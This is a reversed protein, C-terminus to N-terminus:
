AAPPAAGSVWSSADHAAAGADAAVMCGGRRRATRHVRAAENACRTPGPSSCMRCPFASRHRRRSTSRWTFARRNSSRHTPRSPAKQLGTSMARSTTSCGWSTSVMDRAGTTLKLDPSEPFVCRCRAHRARARSSRHAHSLVPRRRRGFRSVLEGLAKSRERCRSQGPRARGWRRM